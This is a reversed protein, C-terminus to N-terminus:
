NNGKVERTGPKFLNLFFLVDMVLVLVIAWDFSHDGEGHINISTLNFTAYFWLLQMPILTSIFNLHSKISPKMVAERGTFIFTAFWIICAVGVWVLIINKDSENARTVVRYILFLVFAAYIVLTVFKILRYNKFSINM